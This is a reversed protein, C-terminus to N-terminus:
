EPVYLSDIQLPEYSEGLTYIRRFSVKDGPKISAFPPCDEGADKFSIDLESLHALVDTEWSSVSLRATLNKVDVSQVVGVGEVM